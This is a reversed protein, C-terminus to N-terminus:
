CDRVERLTGSYQRDFAVSAQGQKSFGTCDVVLVGSRLRRASRLQRWVVDANWRVGSMFYSLAQCSGPDSLRAFMMAMSQRRRDCLMGQLYGDLGGRQARGSFVPEFIELWATLRALWVPSGHVVM